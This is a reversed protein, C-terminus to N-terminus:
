YSVLTIGLIPHEMKKQEFQATEQKKTITNNDILLLFNRM